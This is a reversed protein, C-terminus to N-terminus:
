AAARAAFYHGAELDELLTPGTPQWGFRARTRESTAIVDLGMFTGVFGLREQAEEPSISATPVGLHRGTVEAIRGFPVGEEAVAHVVTGPTAQELALCFARAADSRHAASWRNTGDAVYAAQGRARADAVYIAIFGHDGDGHVTPPLRVASSRVGAAALDLVFRETARRPSEEAGVDVATDEAVLTGPPMVGIGSALVLPRDSGALTEGLVEVARRDAGVAGAFDGTFAIDHKFATHIVGDAQAAAARLVDLDDLTGRVVEAGAAAVTAAAADSRALGAVQHGAALLDRTVASGIWGSAGTVFVRM